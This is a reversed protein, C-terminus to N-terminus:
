LYHLFYQKCFFLLLADANRSYSNGNDCRREYYPKRTHRKDPECGLGLLEALPYIVTANPAAKGIHAHYDKLYNDSNQRSLRELDGGYAATYQRM